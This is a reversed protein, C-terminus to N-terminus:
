LAVFYGDVALRLHLDCSSGPVGLVVTVAPADAYLRTFVNGGNASPYPPFFLHPAVFPEPGTGFLTNVTFNPTCESGLSRTLFYNLNEIVLRRGDPIPLVASVDNGNLTIHYVARHKAPDDSDQVPVPQDRTNNVSFSSPFNDVSVTGGVTLQSNAVNVNATGQEHVRIFRNADLNQERVPQSPQPVPEPQASVKGMLMITVASGLIAFSVGTLARRFAHPMPPDEM